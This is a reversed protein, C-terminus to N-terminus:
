LLCEVDAGETKIYIGDPLEGVIKLGDHPDWAASYEASDRKDWWSNLERLTTHWVNMRDIMESVKPLVEEALPGFYQPHSYLIIPMGAVYQSEITYKFRELVYGDPVETGEEQAKVYARETSFPDVPIQKVAMRKGHEYPYFPLDYICYGFDSSYQIGTKELARNLAFNWMGRPAVFGPQEPIGLQRMWRRCDEINKINDEESTYLNHERAHCGIYHCSDISQLRDSESECLQKNVYFSIPIGCKKGARSLKELNEGYIGDVDVRFIFASQYKEPYYNLSVYPLGQKIYAAVLLKKMARLLLHKDVATIRESYGSGEPIERLTDGLACILESFPIGTYWCGGKGLPQWLIAPYEDPHLNAKIKRQEHLCLKGVGNGNYVQVVCGIQAVGAGLVSLDAKDLSAAGIYDTSFPLDEPRVGSLIAIGGERLYSELWQPTQGECILVTCDPQSTLKHPTKEQECLIRWGTAQEPYRGDYIGTLLQM